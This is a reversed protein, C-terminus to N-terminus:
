ARPPRLDVKLLAHPGNRSHAYLGPLFMAHWERGLADLQQTRQWAFALQDEDAGLDAAGDPIDCHITNQPLQAINCHMAEAGCESSPYFFFGSIGRQERLLRERVGNAAGHLFSIPAGVQEFLARSQH